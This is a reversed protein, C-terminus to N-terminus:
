NRNLLEEHLRQVCAPCFRLVRSESIQREILQSKDFHKRCLTCVELRQDQPGRGQRIVYKFGFITFLVMMLIFLAALVTITM